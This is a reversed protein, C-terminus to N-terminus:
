GARSLCHTKDRETDGKFLSLSWSVMLIPVLDNSTSMAFHRKNDLIVAVPEYAPSRATKLPRKSSAGSTQLVHDDLELLGVVALDIESASQCKAEHFIVLVVLPLIVDDHKVRSKVRNM